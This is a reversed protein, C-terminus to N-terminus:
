TDAKELTGITAGSQDMVTMSTETISASGARNLWTDVGECMMKTSGLETFTVTNGEQKWGGILRNCGDTGSLSGDEALTLSPHGPTEVGWTAVPSLDASDADSGCGAPALLLAAAAALVAIRPRDVRM